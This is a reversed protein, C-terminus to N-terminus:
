AEQLCGAWITRYDVEGWFDGSSLKNQILTAPPFRMKYYSPDDIEQWIDQISSLALPIFPDMVQVGDSFLLTERVRAYITETATDVLGELYAHDIRQLVSSKTAILQDLYLRQYTDVYPWLEHAAVEFPEPSRYFNVVQLAIDCYQEFSPTWVEVERDLRDIFVRITDSSAQVDICDELSRGIIQEVLAFSSM